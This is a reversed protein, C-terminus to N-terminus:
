LWNVPVGNIGVLVFWNVFPAFKIEAFEVSVKVLLVIVEKVPIFEATIVAGDVVPVNANVLSIGSPKVILPLKGFM